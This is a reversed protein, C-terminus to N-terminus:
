REARGGPGDITSTVDELFKVSSLVAYVKWDGSSGLRVGGCKAHLVARDPVSSDDCDDECSEWPKWTLSRMWLSQRM